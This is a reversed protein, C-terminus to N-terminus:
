VICSRLGEKSKVQIRKGATQIWEQQTWENFIKFVTEYSTGAYSAIDQRSLTISLFKEEDNGFREDLMLLMEAVRGKVDQHALKSMRQEASQLELSYVHMLEYSLNPNTRLTAELHESPIFCVKTPELAVTSVRFVDDGFGRIGLIDGAKVFRVILEKEEGWQKFVKAVGSLMFYMGNVPSGETFVQEGKKFLLTQKKIRTLELWEKQVNRCFFCSNLDCDIRRM